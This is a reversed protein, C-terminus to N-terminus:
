DLSVNIGELDKVFQCDNVANVVQFVQYTLLKKKISGNRNSILRLDRCLLYTYLWLSLFLHKQTFVFYVARTFSLQNRCEEETENEV